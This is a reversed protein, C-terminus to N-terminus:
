AAVRYVFVLAMAHRLAQSVWPREQVRLLTEVGARVYEANSQWRGEFLRVNGFWADVNSVFVDEVPLELETIPDNYMAVNLWDRLQRPGPKRNGRCAAAALHILMEIRTTATHNEPRTLLGGLPAAVLPFSFKELRGVLRALRAAISGIERLESTAAHALIAAVAEASPDLSRERLSTNGGYWRWPEPRVRARRADLGTVRTSGTPSLATAVGALKVRAQGLDGHAIRVRLRIDGEPM